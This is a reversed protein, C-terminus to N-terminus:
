ADPTLRPNFPFEEPGKITLSEFDPHVCNLIINHEQPALVSPV